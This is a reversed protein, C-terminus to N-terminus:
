FSIILDDEHFGGGFTFNVDTRVRLESGRIYFRVSGKALFLDVGLEVGNDFSGYFSGFSIGLISM